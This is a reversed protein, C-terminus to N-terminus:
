LLCKQAQQIGNLERMNMSVMSQMNRKFPHAAGMDIDQRHNVPGVDVFKFAHNSQAVHKIRVAHVGNAGRLRPNLKLRLKEESRSVMGELWFRGTITSRHPEARQDM